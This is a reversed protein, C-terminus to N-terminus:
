SIVGSNQINFLTQTVSVFYIHEGIERKGNFGNNAQFHLFWSPTEVAPERGSVRM